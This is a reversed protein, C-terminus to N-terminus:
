EIAIEVARKATELLSSSLARLKRAELILARIEQQTSQALIPLVISKLALQSIEPKVGGNSGQQILM